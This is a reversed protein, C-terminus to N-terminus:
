EAFFKEWFADNVRRVPAAPNAQNNSPVEHQSSVSNTVENAVNRNSSAGGDSEKDIAYFITSEALKGIEQCDIQPSRASYSPMHDDSSLELSHLKPSEDGTGRRSFCSDMEFNFPTETDALEELTGPTLPLDIEALMGEPEEDLLMEHPGEGDENSSRTSPSVLNIDSVTPSLELRLKNSFDEDFFVNGFETKSGNPSDIFNNESEAVPQLQLHDLQPLRRKKNYDMSEIKRSIKEVVNPNRLAKEFFNILNSQREEVRDLRRELDELQLKVASNNQKFNIIYSEIATKERSIQKTQEQIAARQPDLLTGQPHIHSHVAKRRHINKLLHDQGRVFNDNAFEWREAHIKRFGQVISCM